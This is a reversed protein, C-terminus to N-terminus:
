VLSCFSHLFNEKVGLFMVSNLVSNLKKMKKVLFCKCVNGEMIASVLNEPYHMRMGEFEHMRKYIFPINLLLQEGNPAALSLTPM